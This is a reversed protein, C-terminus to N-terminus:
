QYGSYQSLVPLRNKYKGAHLQHNYKIPQVPSYNQQRGLSIAQDALVYGLGIIGLLSVFIIKHRNRWGWSGKPVEVVEKDSIKQLSKSARSIIYIAIVLLSIIGILFYMSFGGTNVDTKDAACADVADAVKAYDLDHSSTKQPKSRKSAVM